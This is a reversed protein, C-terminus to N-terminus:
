GESKGDLALIDKLDNIFQDKQKFGPISKIKNLEKDLYVITPYSQRGGLLELALTNIGKRGGPRWEYEKGKFNVTDKTEADMKIVFFHEDIFAKVEPDNFTQADMKKCWGCWTTYMDVIFRKGEVNNINQAEDITLWNLDGEPTLSSVGSSTPQCAYLCALILSLGIIKFTQKM